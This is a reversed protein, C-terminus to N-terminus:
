LAASQQKAWSVRWPSEATNRKARAREWVRAKRGWIGALTLQVTLTEVKKREIKMQSGQQITLLHSPISILWNTPSLQLWMESNLRLKSHWLHSLEENRRSTPVDCVPLSWSCPATVVDQSTWYSLLQNQFFFFVYALATVHLRIWAELVMHICFAFCMAVLILALQLVALGM